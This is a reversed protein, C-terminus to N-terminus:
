KALSKGTSNLANKGTQFWSSLKWHNECQDKIWRYNKKSISTPTYNYKKGEEPDRATRSLKNFNM